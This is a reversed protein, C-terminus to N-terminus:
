GASALAYAVLGGRATWLITRIWNTNVLQRWADEDFGSQLRSHRPVQIGFTSAWVGIVLGAGVFSLANPAVWAWAAATLAEGVMIPAILVGARNTHAQEYASFAEAPVRGMLPYHLIQVFWIIGVMTWTLAAHAVLLSM